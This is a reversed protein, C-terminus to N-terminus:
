NRLLDKPITPLKCGNKQQWESGQDSFKVISQFVAEVDDEPYGQELLKAKYNEAYNRVIGPFMEDQCRILFVPEDEGIKGDPDQIRDYDKRNHIM